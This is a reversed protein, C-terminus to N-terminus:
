ARRVIKAKADEMSQWKLSRRKFEESGFKGMWGQLYASDCIEVIEEIKDGQDDMTLIFVIDHEYPGDVTDATGKVRFVSKREEIDVVPRQGGIM